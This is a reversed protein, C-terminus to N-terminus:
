YISARTKSLNNTLLNHDRRLLSYLTFIVVIYRM